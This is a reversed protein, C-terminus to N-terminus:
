ADAALEYLGLFTGDLRTVVFRRDDSGHRHERLSRVEESPRITRPGPEMVHAVMAADHHRGDDTHLLGVVVDNDSLVICVPSSGVRHLVSAIADDVRCVPVNRDLSSGVLEAEGEWPLGFALWDMKGAAYDLM